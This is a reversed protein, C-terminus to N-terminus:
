CALLELIQMERKSNQCVESLKMPLIYKAIVPPGLCFVATLVGGGGGGAGATAPLNM